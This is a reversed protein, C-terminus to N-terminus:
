LFVGETAGRIEDEVEKTRGQEILKRPIEGNLLKQPSNLWELAEERTNYLNELLLLIRETESKKYIFAAIARFLLIIVLTLIGIAITSVLNGDQLALLIGSLGFFFVCLSIADRVLMQM